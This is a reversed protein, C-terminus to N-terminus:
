GGLTRIKQEIRAKEAEYLPNNTRLLPLAARYAALAASKDGKAEYVRGQAVYVSDTKKIAEANKYAAIADDWKQANEANVGQQIYLEYKTDDDSTTTIAEAIKKNSEETKGTSSLNQAEKVEEPLPDEAFGPVGEVVAGGSPNNSNQSQQWRMFIGLGGAALILLVVGVITILKKHKRWFPAKPVKPMGTTEISKKVKLM